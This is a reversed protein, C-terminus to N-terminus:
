QIKSTRWGAGGCGSCHLSMKRNPLCSCSTLLVKVLYITARSLEYGKQLRASQDGPRWLSVPAPYEGVEVQGTTVTCVVQEVSMTVFLVCALVGHGREAPVLGIRFFSM